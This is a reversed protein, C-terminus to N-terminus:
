TLRGNECDKPFTHEGPRCSRKVTGQRYYYGIKRISTLYFIRFKLINELKKRICESIIFISPYVKSSIAFTRL